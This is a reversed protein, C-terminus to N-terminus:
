DGQDKEKALAEAAEDPTVKRAKAFDRLESIVQIYRSFDLDRRRVTRGIAREVTENRLRTRLAEQVISVSEPDM